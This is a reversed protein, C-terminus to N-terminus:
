APEIIASMSLVGHGTTGNQDYFYREGTNALNVLRNDALALPYHHLAQVVQWGIERADQLPTGSTTWVHVNLTIEL